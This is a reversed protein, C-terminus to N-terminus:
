GQQSNALLRPVRRLMARRIQESVDRSLLVMKAAARIQSTEWAEGDSGLAALPCEEDDLTGFEAWRLSKGFVGQEPLMGNRTLVANKSQGSIGLALKVNAKGTINFQYVIKDFIAGLIGGHRGAFGHQWPAHSGAAKTDIHFEECM